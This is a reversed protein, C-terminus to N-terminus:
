LCTAPAPLHFAQRRDTPSLWGGLAPENCYPRVCPQRYQVAKSGTGTHGQGEIGRGAGAGVQEEEGQVRFEEVAVSQAGYALLM